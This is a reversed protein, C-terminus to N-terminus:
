CREKAFTKFFYEGQWSFITLTQRNKIIQPQREAMRFFKRRQAIVAFKPLILSPQAQEHLLSFLFLQHQQPQTPQRQFCCLTNTDNTHHLEHSATAPLKPNESSSFPLFLFSLSPKMEATGQYSLLTLKCIQMECWM